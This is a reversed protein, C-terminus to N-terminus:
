WLLAIAGSIALFCVVWMIVPGSAGTFKFGLGEFEIKGTTIEFISVVFLAAVAALPLGITAAFHAKAVEIVWKDESFFLYVVILALYVSAFLAAGVVIMWQAVQTRLRTWRDPAEM